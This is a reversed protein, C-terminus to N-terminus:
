TTPDLIDRIVLEEAMKRAYWGPQGDKEAKRVIAKYSASARQDIEKLHRELQEESMAELLEPAKTQLMLLRKAWWTQPM